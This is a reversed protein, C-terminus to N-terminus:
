GTRLISSDSGGVGSTSAPAPSSRGHGVPASRTSCSSAVVGLVIVGVLLFACAARMGFRAPGFGPVLRRRAGNSYPNLLRADLVDDGSSQESTM